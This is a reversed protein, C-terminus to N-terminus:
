LGSLRRRILKGASLSLKSRESHLIQIFWQKLSLFRILDVRRTILAV